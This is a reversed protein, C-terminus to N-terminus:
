FHDKFPSKVEKSREIEQPAAASYSLRYLMRFTGTQHLEVSTPEFLAAAYYNPFFRLQAM